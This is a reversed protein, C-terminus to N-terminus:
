VTPNCQWVGVSFIAHWAYQCNTGNYLHGKTHGSGSAFGCGVAHDRDRKGSLWGSFNHLPRYTTFIEYIINKCSQRKVQSIYVTHVKAKLQVLM